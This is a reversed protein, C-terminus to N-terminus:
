FQDDGTQTIKLVDHRRDAIDFTQVSLHIVPDDIQGSFGIRRISELIENLSRNSVLTPM